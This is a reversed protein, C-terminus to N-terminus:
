RLWLDPDILSWGRRWRPRGYTWGEQRRGDIKGRSVLEGLAVALKEDNEIVGGAFVLGIEDDGGVGDGGGL